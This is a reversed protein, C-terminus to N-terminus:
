PRCCHQGWPRFLTARAGPALLRHVPRAPPAPRALGAGPRGLHWRSGHSAPGSGPSTPTCAGPCLCHSAQWGPSGVTCRLPPLEHPPARDPRSNGPGHDDSKLPLLPGDDPDPAPHRVLPWQASVPPVFELLSSISIRTLRPSFELGFYLIHDSFNPLLRHFFRTNKQNPCTKQAQMSVILQNAMGWIAAYETAQATRLYWIQYLILANAWM